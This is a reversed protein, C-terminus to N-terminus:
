YNKTDVSSFYDAQEVNYIFLNVSSILGWYGGFNAVGYNTQSLNQDRLYQYNLSAGDSGGAQKTYAGGRIEGYVINIQFNFGRLQSMQASLNGIAQAETKWFNGAGYYDVPSLDLWDSCSTLGMSAAVIATTVLSYLKNKKMDMTLKLQNSHLILDLFYLVHYLM